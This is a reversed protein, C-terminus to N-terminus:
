HASITDGSDNQDTRVCGAFRRQSTPNGCHESTSKVIFDSLSQTARRQCMIRRRMSLELLVVEILLDDLM